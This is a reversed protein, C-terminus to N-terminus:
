KKHGVLPLMELYSSHLKRFKALKPNIVAKCYGAETNRNYYDQHQQEAEYFTNSPALQTVINNPYAQQVEKIVKKAIALEEENEYFVM